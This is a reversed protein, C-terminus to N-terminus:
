RTIIALWDGTGPSKIPVTSDGQVTSSAEPVWDGKSLDIWDMQYTGPHGILDLDIEGGDTFYCMYKEGPRLALYAENAERNLVLENDAKVEWMKVRDEMNRVAKLSAQALDNLGNGSTPRHFRASASGGLINRWFREVGDKPSGSGFSTHGSGYIKTHNVPRPNVSAQDILWRMRDWHDQGFNRSNVQSIDVFSYIQPNDFVLRVKTSNEGKWFDDFMDTVFVKRGVEAARDRIFQMWYQGWPYPTSTENDM